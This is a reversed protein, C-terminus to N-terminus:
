ESKITTLYHIVQKVYGAATQPEKGSSIVLDYPNLSEQYRGVKFKANVKHAIYSFTYNYSPCLDIFLDSTDSLFKEIMEGKPTKIFNFEKKVLLKIHHNMITQPFTSNALNISVGSYEIRHNLAYTTLLKVAELVGEEEFDFIFSISRVKPLPMYKIERVSQIKKLKNKRLTNIFFM